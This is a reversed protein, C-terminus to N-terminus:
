FTLSQNVSGLSKINLMNTIPKGFAGFYIVNQGVKSFLLFYYWDENNTMVKLSRFMSVFPIWM